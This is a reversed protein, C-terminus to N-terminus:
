NPTMGRARRARASATKRAHCPTCLLEINRPDLEAGGDSRERKHDGVVRQKSGCRECWPGREAKIAAVLDRWERSQYFAEALKQPPRLSPALTGVQPKLNTLKGM